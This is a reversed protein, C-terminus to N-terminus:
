NEEDGEVDGLIDDEDEEEVAEEVDEGEEKAKAERRAKADAERQEKTSDRPGETDDFLRLLMAKREEKPLMLNLTFRSKWLPLVLRGVEKGAEDEALDVRLVCCGAGVSEVRERIEGCDEVRPFLEKMLWRLTEKQKLHVVRKEGVWSEVLGLGENQIRWQCAEPDQVEQRNFMKVGCHVFRVGRGENETLIQRALTSTFYITRVPIGEANRVLFNDLPFYPSLVYFKKIIDLVQHSAPLFKFPEENFNGRPKKTSVKVEQEEEAEKEVKTNQNASPIDLPAPADNDDDKETVPTDVTSDLKQRKTPSGPDAVEEEEVFLARKVGNATSASSIGVEEVMPVDIDATAAVGNGSNGGEVAVGKMRQGGTRVTEGEPAAKIAGKKHLVTIFFGGTDQLHPYVRVARNLMGALQGEADEPPFMGRTLRDTYPEGKGRVEEWSEFWTGDRDMVKWKKMGERRILGPLRDSVDVIEVVGAGGCREIAAHVVAENEIPNLSCTSYVLRGGVKLLQLGRVLIRAQTSWLGNGNAPSWDRWILPNKRVTGDGSCPVDCLVRDFKLYQQKARKGDESQEAPLRLSPYLTADYNTVIFNPTNLRKTQHILLHSRKYDADNAIVLGTARGLLKEPVEVNAELPHSTPDTDKLQASAELVREEEGAHIAEILQATKSGPAACMDLVTHHPEVDMLLPPIMSVAEQRSINGSSTESVLFAQLQKFPPSRRIVQKGVTLQWALQDPYWSLPTPAPITTGEFTTNTLQPIHKTLLTNRVSIAHGKSGTFRWTTPLTDKLSQWFKKFEEEDPVIGQAVYYNEFKANDKPLQTYDTREQNGNSRGGRGKKDAGRKNRNKRSM